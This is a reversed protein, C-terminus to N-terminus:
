KTPTLSMSTKRLGSLRQPLFVSSRFALKAHSAHMPLADLAGRSPLSFVDRELDGKCASNKNHHRVKSTDARSVVAAYGGVYIQTVM